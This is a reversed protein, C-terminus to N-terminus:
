MHLLSALRCTLTPRALGLSTGRQSMQSFAGPLYEEKVIRMRIRMNKKRMQQKKRQIQICSEEITLCISTGEAQLTIHYNM